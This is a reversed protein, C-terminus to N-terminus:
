FQILITIKLVNIVILFLNLSYHRSNIVSALVHHMHKDNSVISIQSYNKSYYDELALNDWILRKKNSELGYSLM